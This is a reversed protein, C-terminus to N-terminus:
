FKLVQGKVKLQENKITAKMEEFIVVDEMLSHRKLYQFTLLDKANLVLEVELVRGLRLVSLFEAWWTEHLGNTGKWTLAYKDLTYGPAPTYNLDCSVYPVEPINPASFIEPALKFGRFFM